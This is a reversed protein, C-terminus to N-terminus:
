DLQVRTEGLGVESKRRGSSGLADDHLLAVFHGTKRRGVVAYVTGEEREAPDDARDPGELRGRAREMGAAISGVIAKVLLFLGLIGMLWSLFDAM